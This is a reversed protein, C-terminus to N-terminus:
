DRRRRARRPRKPPVAFEKGDDTSAVTIEPMSPHRWKSVLPTNGKRRNCYTHAAQLNDLKHLRSRYRTGEVAKGGKRIDFVAFVKPVIHEVQAGELKMEAGCLGCRRDDRKWLYRLVKKRHEEHWKGAANPEDLELNWRQVRDVTDAVAGVVGSVRDLWGRPEGAEDSGEVQRPTRAPVERVPVEPRAPAPDNVIGRCKPFTPCGWFESGQHQGRRATRRVM